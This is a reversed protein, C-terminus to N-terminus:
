QHVSNVLYTWLLKLM